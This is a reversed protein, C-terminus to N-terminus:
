LQENGARDVVVRIPHDVPSSLTRGHLTDRAFSFMRFMPFRPYQLSYKCRWLSLDISLLRGLQEQITPPFKLAVFLPAYNLFSSNNISPTTKRNQDKREWGEQEKVM